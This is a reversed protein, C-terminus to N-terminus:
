ERVFLLLVVLALLDLGAAVVGNAVLGIGFLVPGILAGLARGVSHSGVNSAMMTARAEPVLETMLPIGSVITFEFTLYLLFLGASAGALNRGLLPLALCAAANLAM